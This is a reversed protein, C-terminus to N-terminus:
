GHSIVQPAVERIFFEGAKEAMVQHSVGDVSVAV